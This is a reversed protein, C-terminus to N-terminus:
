KARERPFLCWVQAILSAGFFFVNMAIAAFGHIGLALALALPRGRRLCLLTGLLAESVVTLGALVANVPSSLLWDHLFAPYPWHLVHIMYAHRVWFHDGSLFAPNLKLTASALYIWGTQILLGDRVWAPVSQRKSSTHESSDTPTATPAAFALWAATVIYYLFDNLGFYVFQEILRLGCLALAVLSARRGTWLLFEGVILATQLLQLGLPAGAITTPAWWACLSTGSLLLDFGDYVLWIVAFSRRFAVLPAAGVERDLWNLVISHM